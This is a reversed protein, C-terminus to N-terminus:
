IKEKITGRLLIFNSDLFIKTCVLNPFEKINNDLNERKLLAM